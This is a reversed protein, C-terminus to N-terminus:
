ILLAQLQEKVKEEGSDNNEIKLCEIQPPEFIEAMKKWYERALQWTKQKLLREERVADQAEVLIFKAQPFADLFQQRYKEKIFVQTVVLKDHEAQLRKVEAIINDFFTDRLDDTVVKQERIAQQLELPMVRDAEYAYFGFYKQLIEGVFTKGAGPLGFVVYLQM